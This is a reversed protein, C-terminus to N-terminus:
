RKEKGASDRAPRRAFWLGVGLCALGAGITDAVWDAVSSYRGPVSLQHWEDLAGYTVALALALLTPVPRLRGLGGHTARLCLLGFVAYAATHVVKDGVRTVVAPAETGSLAYVLVMFAVVPGWLGIRRLISV